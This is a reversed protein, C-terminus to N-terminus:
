MSASTFKSFGDLLKDLKHPKWSVISFCMLAKDDRPLVESVYPERNVEDISLLSGISDELIQIEKFMSAMVEDITWELNCHECAIHKKM